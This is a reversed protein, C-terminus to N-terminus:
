RLIELDDATIRQFPAGYRPARNDLPLPPADIAERPIPPDDATDPALMEGAFTNSEPM